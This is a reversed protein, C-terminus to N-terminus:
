PKKRFMPYAWQGESPVFTVEVRDGIALTDPDTEVINTMMTPGEALTVFAMVYPEAAAKVHSFSYLTGAGTAVQWQLDDSQCFPCIARPYHHPRDCSRCRRLLLRGDKAANWFELTEPNVVPEPLKAPSM